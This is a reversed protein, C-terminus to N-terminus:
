PVCTNLHLVEYVGLKFGFNGLTRPMLGRAPVQQARPRLAALAIFEHVAHNPTQRAPFQRLVGQTDVVDILVGGVIAKLIQPDSRLRELVEVGPRPRPALMREGSAHIEKGVSGLGVSCLHAELSPLNVAAVELGRFLRFFGNGCPPFLQNLLFVKV